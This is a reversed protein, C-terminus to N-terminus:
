KKRRGTFFRFVFYILGAVVALKVVFWITAFIAGVFKLLILAGIVAVVVLVADDIRSLTSSRRSPKRNGHLDPLRAM